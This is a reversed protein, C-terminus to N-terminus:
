SEFRCDVTSSHVAFEDISIHVDPHGSFEFMQLENM